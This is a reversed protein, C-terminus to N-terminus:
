KSELRFGCNVVVATDLPYNKGFRKRWNYVQMADDKIIDAVKCVQVDEIILWYRVAWIPMTAPSLYPSDSDGDAKYIAISKPKGPEYVYPRNPESELESIWALQWAEKVAVRDGHRYPLDICGLLNGIKSFSFWEENECIFRVAETQTEHLLIPRVFRKMRVEQLSKIEDTTFHM